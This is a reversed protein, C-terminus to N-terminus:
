YVHKVEQCPRRHYKHTLSVQGQTVQETVRTDVALRPTTVSSGERIVPRQRKKEQKTNIQQNTKEQLYWKNVIVQLSLVKNSSPQVKSECVSLPVRIKHHDKEIWSSWLTFYRLAFYRRKCQSLIQETRIIIFIM